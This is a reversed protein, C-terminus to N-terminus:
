IYFSRGQCNNVGKDVDRSFEAIKQKIYYQGKPDFHQMNRLGIEGTMLYQTAMEIGIESSDLKGSTASRMTLIDQITDPFAQRAADDAINSGQQEFNRSAFLDIDNVLGQPLGGSGFMAHVLRHTMIWSTPPMQADSFNDGMVFHISHKDTFLNDDIDTLIDRLAEAGDPSVKSMKKLLDSTIPGEPFMEGFKELGPINLVYIYLNFPIKALKKKYVQKEISKQIHSRDHQSFSGADDLSSGHTTIDALPAEILDILKRMDM